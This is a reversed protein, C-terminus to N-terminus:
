CGEEYDSFIDIGIEEYIDIVPKDIREEMIYNLMEDRYRYSSIVIMDIDNKISRLEFVKCGNFEEYKDNSKAYYIDAKIPSILNQYANILGKTHNGVGFVAVRVKSNTFPLKKLINRYKEKTASKILRSRSNDYLQIDIKESHTLLKNESVLDEIFRESNDDFLIECIRAATRLLLIERQTRKNQNGFKICRFFLDSTLLIMKKKYLLLSNYNKILYKYVRQSVDYLDEIKEESPEGTMTSNARYRRYHLKEPFYRVKKAAFANVLSFLIDEFCRIEPYLCTNRIFECRYLCMTSATFFFKPYSISFFSLGSMVETNKLTRYYHNMCIINDESFANTDYYIIDCKDEKILENLKEVADISIYDDSDLFMVYESTVYKLGNNRARAQGQNEQYLYVINNYKKCYEQCIVGSNDTSGDNVLIIREFSFNQSVVSELCEGLWKETNYIPIVVSIESLLKNDCLEVENNMGIEM